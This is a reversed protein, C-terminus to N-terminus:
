EYRFAFVKYPPFNNSSKRAIKKLNTNKEYMVDFKPDFFLNPIKQRKSTPNILFTYKIGGYEFSKARVPEETELPNAIEKGNDIIEGVFSMEQIVEVVKAWDKPKEEPLPKKNSYYTFYFLGTAGNFIADYSMFRIEEKKPFRGIRDSDKRYQAYEKWDFLQVVAWLEKNEKGVMTLGQKALAVNEGFSELPLHPVPYWDVMLIDAIDYYPVDTFGQGIVFATQIDPYIKKATENLSILKERSLNHVDPEDYLYWAKVPYSKADTKYKNDEIIKNPYVLLKIENKAAEDALAKINEPNKNYTHICNFGAEKVKTIDEPNKVGYLGLTFEAFVSSCSLSIILLQIFINNVFNLM